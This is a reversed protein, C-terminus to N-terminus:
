LVEVPNEGSHSKLQLVIIFSQDGDLFDKVFKTLFNFEKEHQRPDEDKYIM